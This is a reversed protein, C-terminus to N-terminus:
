NSLEKSKKMSLSNKNLEASDENFKEIVEVESLNIAQSQEDTISSCLELLKNEILMLNQYQEMKLNRIFDSINKGSYKMSYTIYMYLKKFIFNKNLNSLLFVQLCQPYLISIDKGHINTVGNHFSIKAMIIEEILNIVSEKPTGLKICKNIFIIWENMKEINEKITKPYTTIKEFLAVFKNHDKTSFIELLSLIKSLDTVNKIEKEHYEIILSDINNIENKTIELINSLNYGKSINMIETLFKHYTHADIKDETSDGITVNNKQKSYFNKLKDLLMNDIKDILSDHMETKLFNISYIEKLLNNINTIQNEDFSINIKDFAYLYNSCVIKKQNVLKFYASVIDSLDTYGSESLKDDVSIKKLLLKIERKKDSFSLKSSKSKKILLNGLINIQDENLNVISSDLDITKWITSIKLCIRSIDICNKNPLKSILNKFKLYTKEMTDDSFVLDGDDDIEMNYCEDIVIILHHRPNSFSKSIIEIEPITTEDSINNWNISYLIFNYNDFNDKAISTELTFSNCIKIGSLLYDNLFQLLYETNSGFIGAKIIKASNTDYINTM